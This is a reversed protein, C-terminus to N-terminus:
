GGGFSWGHWYMGVLLEFTQQIETAITGVVVTERNEYWHGVLLKIAQKLGDPVAAADGYGAVYTIQVANIKGEQTDPWSEGVAPWIEAPEVQDDLQYDASDLTQADGASDTYAISTISQLRPRPLLIPQVVGCKDRPFEDLSLRLTQTILARQCRKEVVDTAAAILSALLADDDDIDVRCHTKAEALSVPSSAPASTVVYKM